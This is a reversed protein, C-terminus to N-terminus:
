RPAPESSAARSARPSASLEDIWHELLALFDAPQELMPFHGVGEMSLAEFDALRRNQEVDAAPESAAADIVRVPVGAAALVPGLQFDELGRLLGVAARRDTRLARMQIWDLLEAPATAPVVARLSAGVARPFDAELACASQELFGPPYAFDARHLSDVAIVGRVRPALRPAALLAVPAGMSHAVLIVETAGSAEVVAVVDDALAALTWRTRAAGSSGHGALDLAIVRHRPALAELTARWLGREGCWGHVFVLAPAGSGLEEYAIPVGDASPVRREPGRAVSAVGTCGPFAASALALAVLFARFPRM